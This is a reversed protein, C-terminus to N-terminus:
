LHLGLGLVRRAMFDVQEPTIDQHIPLEVLHERLYWADAHEPRRTDPDGGNWYEM